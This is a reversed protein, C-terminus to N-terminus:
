GVRNYCPPPKVTSRNTLINGKIRLQGSVSQAIQNMCGLKEFRVGEAFSITLLIPPKFTPTLGLGIAGM